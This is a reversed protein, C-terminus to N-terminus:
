RTITDCGALSPDIIKLAIEAYNLAHAYHDPIDNKAFEAKVKDKHMTRIPAKLNRDFEESADTPLLLDGAMVRGLSKTLWATKDCKVLSAGYDDETKVIERGSHGETYQCLYVSGPFRRAFKRAETPQPFYDIVALVIQFERMLGFVRDWDDAMIRGLGLVKGIARDNPDGYRELDFKWSVATWHHVPGGQDIGLTVMKHDEGRVIGIDKTSYPDIKKAHILHSETIRHSGELYPEGIASNHFERLAAIDGREGKLYKAAFQEPTVGPSLM